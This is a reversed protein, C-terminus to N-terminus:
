RMFTKAIKVTGNHTIEVRWQGATNPIGWSFYWYPHRYAQTYSHPHDVYISGDPRIIKVNFTTGSDGGAANIGVGLTNGLLNVLDAPPDKLQNTSSFSGEKLYLDMIDFPTDYVPPDAWMGQEFPSIVENDCGRVEFHIHPATSCGSSGVVALPDGVQVVQGVTVLSSAQKNHVYRTTFGNAHQIIIVNNNHNVCSTHRDPHEDIISIVQGDAAARVYALEPGDMERFSPIDIDIGNHGNYTKHGNQYDRTGGSTNLDVYNNIVWDQADQGEIPWQLVLDNTTCSCGLPHFEDVQGDCDDDVQNCVDPSPNAACDMNFYQTWWLQGKFHYKIKWKGPLNPLSNLQWHWHGVMGGQSVAFNKTFYVNGAPDILEIQVPDNVQAYGLVVGFDIPTQNSFTPIVDDRTAYPDYTTSRLEATSLFQSSMIPVLISPTQTDFDTESWYSNASPDVQTGSCDLVKFVFQPSPYNHCNTVSLHGIEQGTQVQDGLSMWTAGLLEYSTKFGNDHEIVVKNGGVNCGWNGHSYQNVVDVVTGSRAAYVSENHAMPGAMMLAGVSFTKGGSSHQDVVFHLGNEGPQKQQAPDSTMIPSDLDFYDDVCATPQCNSTCSDGDITNGDDCVEDGEVINNGCVESSPPPPPEDQHHVSRALRAGLYTEQTAPHSHSRSQVNDFQDLSDIWSFGRIQRATQNQSDYNADNANQPCTGNCHGSGDDPAGVYNDSEEDLVWEALNGSLNCVGQDSQGASHFCAPSPGPGNCSDNNDFMDTLNCNPQDHGWPYPRNQGASKAAYEWEAESPLRAGVWAAFAMAQHWSIYNVPYDDLDMEYTTPECPGSAGCQPLTCAGAEVCKKWMSVTIESKMVLFSPVNVTHQPRENEQGVDVQSGMMYNGGQLVIWQLQPCGSASQQCPADAPTNSINSQTVEFFMVGATTTGDAEISHCTKPEFAGNNLLQQHTVQGGIHCFVKGGIHSENLDDNPDNTASANDLYNQDIEFFNSHCVGGESSGDSDPGFCYDGSPCPSNLTCSQPDSGGMNNPRCLIFSEDSPQGNVHFAEIRPMIVQGNQVVQPMVMCLENGGLNVACSSERRPFIHWQGNETQFEFENVDGAADRIINRTSGESIDVPSVKPATFTSEMHGPEFFHNLSGIQNYYSELSQNFQSCSVGNLDYSTMQMQDNPLLEMLVVVNQDSEPVQAQETQCASSCGDGDVLNGDDCEEGEERHENGCIPDIECNVSCGDGDMLNGDDCEELNNVEGDGCFAPPSCPTGPQYPDLTPDDVRVLRMGIAFNKRDPHAYQRSTSRLFQDACANSGGRIVRYSGHEPPCGGAVVPRSSQYWDEVWEYVNGYLDYVGWANSQKMGVARPHVLGGRHAYLNLEELIDGFSWTSYSGAKAVYEWEVETPLRYYHDGANQNLAAVFDKAQHWTITEVPSSYDPPSSVFTSPNAGMLAMWEGQTVEYKSIWFTHNLPVARQQENVKRYQQSPKAGFIFHDSEIKVFTIGDFEQEIAQVHDCADGIGDGDQDAQDPNHVAPCNDQTLCIADSDEDSCPLGVGWQLGYCVEGSEQGPTLPGVDYRMALTVDYGTDTTLDHNLDTNQGLRNIDDRLVPCGNNMNSVRSRQESYSGVEWSNLYHDEGFTTLGLYTSVVTSDAGEDFAWLTKPRGSSVGGYDNSLGGSGFYLDGDMYPILAISPIVHNSENTLRYCYRITTCDLWYRLNVRVGDYLFESNVEGNNVNVTPNTNQMASNHLWSGSAIGSSTEQCFLTKWEFITSVMGLDPHDGYRNYHHRTSGLASGLAGFADVNVEVSGLEPDCVAADTSLLIHTGGDPFQAQATSQTILLSACISLIFLSLLSYCTWYSMVKNTQHSM